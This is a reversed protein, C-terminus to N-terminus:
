RDFGQWRGSQGNPRKYWAHVLVFQCHAGEMVVQMINVLGIVVDVTHAVTMRAEELTLRDLRRLVLDIDKEGLFPKAYKETM